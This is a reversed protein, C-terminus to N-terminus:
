KFQTTYTYVAWLTGAIIISGIITVIPHVKFYILLGLVIVLVISFIYKLFSWFMLYFGNFEPLPLFSMIGILINVVIIKQIIANNELGPFYRIFKFIFAIGLSSMSGFLGIFGLEEVNFGPPFQGIRYRKMTKTMFTGPSFFPILGNSFFVVLLSVLSSYKGFVYKLQYGKTLARIKLICVHLSVSIATIIFTLVLNALWAQTTEAGPARFGLVFTTILISGILAIIEKIEFGFHRKIRDVLEHFEIM